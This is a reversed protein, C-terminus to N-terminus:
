RFTAKLSYHRNNIAIDYIKEQEDLTILIEWDKNYNVRWVIKTVKEPDPFRKRIEDLTQYLHVGFVEGGFKEKHNSGWRVQFIDGNKAVEASIAGNYWEFKKLSKISTGNEKLQGPGKFVKCLAEYNTLHAEDLKIDSGVIEDSGAASKYLSAIILLPLIIWLLRKRFTLYLSNM